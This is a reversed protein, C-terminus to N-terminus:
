LLYFCYWEAAWQCTTEITRNAIKYDLELSEYLSLNKYQMYYAASFEGIVAFTKLNQFVSHFNFIGTRDSGGECHYYIVLPRGNVNGHEMMNRVTAIRDALHDYDWNYSDM